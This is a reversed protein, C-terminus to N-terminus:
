DAVCFLVGGVACRDDDLEDVFVRLVARCAHNHPVLAPADGDGLMLADELSEMTHLIGEGHGRAAAPETQEDSALEGPGHTAIDRHLGYCTFARVECQAHVC